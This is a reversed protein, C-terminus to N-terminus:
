RYLKQLTKSQLPQGRKAVLKDVDTFMNKVIRNPDNMAKYLEKVGRMFVGKGIVAPNMTALGSVLEGSTFIDTFDILGQVNKRADVIARHTVEKEVAKLAGYSRKLEQYGEGSAGTIVNDLEKRLNNVVM